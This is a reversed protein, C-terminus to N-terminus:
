ETEPKKLNFEALIAAAEAPTVYDPKELLGAPEFVEVPRADRKRKEWRDGIAAYIAPVIESPFRCKLRAAACGDKLLDAPIGTLAIRAAQLWQGREDKTMGSPVVLMLCASLEAIGVKSPAPQLTFSSTVQGVKSPDSLPLRQPQLALDKKGTETM